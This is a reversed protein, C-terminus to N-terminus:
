SLKKSSNLSDRCIRPARSLRLTQPKSGGRKQLTSPQLASFGSFGASSQPALLPSAEGGVAEALWGLEEEESRLQSAIQGLTGSYSGFRLGQRLTEQERLERLRTLTSAKLRRAEDLREVQSEITRQAVRPDWSNQRSTIGQVSGEMAELSDRDNGMAVVALPAIVAVRKQLLRQIVALARATHSTVLVRQGTALLHCILNVITHSKGTGPPGQVLVGPRRGLRDVIERQEANAPLPFYIESSGAASGGSPSGGSGPNWADAATVFRKLGEPVPEGAELQELIEEFARLFSRDTRERLVLAPALHVIPEASRPPPSLSESYQGAADADQVWTRLLRDVPVPTFIQDGVSQRLDDVDGRGLVSPRQEPPVMEEELRLDPGDGAPGVTIIGRDADHQIAASAVLLHRKVDLGGASKWALLGQGVLLEYREGELGLAQHISFLKAYLDQLPRLRRDRAAWPWWEEEVFHNWDDEVGPENSLEITTADGNEDLLLREARLEPFDLKSDHLQEEVIWPRLSESPKPPPALDPKDVELWCDDARPLLDQRGDEPLGERVWLGSRCRHDIPVDGLFITRTPYDDISHVVRTRLRTLELLFKYLSIGKERDPDTGPETM